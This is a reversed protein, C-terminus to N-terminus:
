HKEVVSGWSCQWRRPHCKGEEQKIRRCIGSRETFGVKEQTKIEGGVFDHETCPILFVTVMLLLKRAEELPGWM